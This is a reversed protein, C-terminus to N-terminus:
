FNLKYDTEILHYYLWEYQSYDIIEHLIPKTGLFVNEDSIESQLFYRYIYKERWNKNHFNIMSSNGYIM